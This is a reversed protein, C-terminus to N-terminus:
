YPYTQSMIETQLINYLEMVVENQPKTADIIYDSKDKGPLFTDYQATRKTAAETNRDKLMREHCVDKPADMFIAVIREGNKKSREQLM